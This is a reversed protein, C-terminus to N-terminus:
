RQAKRAMAKKKRTVKKAVAKKKAIRSGSVLKDMRAVFAEVDALEHGRRRGRIPTLLKENSLAALLFAPTNVSRGRFLPQLAMSTIPEDAPCRELAERIDKVAVWERSFFGGGENEHVIFHIEKEPTCGIKYTLKAKGAISKCTATKLVKISSALSDDTDRKRRPM